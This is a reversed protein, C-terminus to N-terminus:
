FFWGGSQAFQDKLAKLASNDLKNNIIIKPPFVSIGYLVDNEAPKQQISVSVNNIM